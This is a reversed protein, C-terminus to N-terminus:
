RYLLCLCPSRMVMMKMYTYTHTSIYVRVHCDFPLRSASNGEVHTGLALCLSETHHWCEGRSPWRLLGKEEQSLTKSTAWASRSSVHLGGAEGNPNLHVHGSQTHSKIARDGEGERRIKEKNIGPISGLIRHMSTLCEVMSSRSGTTPQDRKM